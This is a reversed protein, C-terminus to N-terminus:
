SASTAQDSYRSDAQPDVAMAPDVLAKAKLARLAPDLYTATTDSGDEAGGKIIGILTARNKEDVVFVPGGSDGKKGPADFRLLGGSNVSTLGGCVVGTRSGDVCIPTGLPLDRIAQQTLVGAVPWQAVAARPQTSTWIAAVDVPGANVAGTAPALPVPDGDPTHQLWQQVGGAPACHGATLFGREQQAMDPVVAPGITCLHMENGEAHQVQIGPVPVSGYQAFTRPNSDRPAEVGQGTVDKWSFTTPRVTASTPAAVVGGTGVATPWPKPEGSSTGSCASLAVAAAAAATVLAYKRSSM